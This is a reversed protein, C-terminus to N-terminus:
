IMHTRKKQELHLIRNRRMHKCTTERQTVYCVLSSEIFGLMQNMGLNDGTFQALRAYVQMPGDETEIEIGNTELHSIENVMKSLLIDLGDENKLDLANCMALMHINSLSANFIPPLNLFTFYFMGSNHVSSSSRNFSTLGLGDYFIQIFLTKPDVPLSSLMTKGRTSNLFCTIEDQCVSNETFSPFVSRFFIPDSLYNKITKSMPCYQALNPRNVIRITSEGGAKTLVTEDRYGLVIPEPCLFHPHQDYVKRIRYETSLSPIVDKLSMLNKKTPIIREKLTAFDVVTDSEGEIAEMTESVRLNVFHTLYRLIDVSVKYPINGRSRFDVIM